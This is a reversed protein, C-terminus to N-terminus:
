RWAGNSIAFNTNEALRHHHMGEIGASPLCFLHIETLKLGAQDELALELVALATVCLFGTEFGSERM